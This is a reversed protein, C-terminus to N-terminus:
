LCSEALEYNLAPHHNEGWYANYVDLFRIEYDKVTHYAEINEPLNSGNIYDSVQENLEDAIQLFAAATTKLQEITPKM